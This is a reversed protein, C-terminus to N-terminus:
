VVIVAPFINASNFPFFMCKIWILEFFKQADKYFTSVEPVKFTEFLSWKEEYKSLRFDLLYMCTLFYSHTLRMGTVSLCILCPQLNVPIVPCLFFVSSHLWQLQESMNWKSPYVDTLVVVTLDSMWQYCYCM